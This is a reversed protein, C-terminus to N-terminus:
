LSKVKKVSKQPKRQADSTDREASQPPGQVAAQRPPDSVDRDVSPYSQTLAADELSKVKPKQRSMRLANKQRISGWLDDLNQDEVVPISADDSFSFEGRPQIYKSDSPPNSRSLNSLSTASSREPYRQDPSQPITIHTPSNTTPTLLTQKSSSPRGDSTSQAKPREYMTHSSGIM